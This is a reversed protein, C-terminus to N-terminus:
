GLAPPGTAPPLFRPAVPRAAAYAAPAPPEARRTVVAFWRVMQGAPVPVAATCCGSGLCDCLHGGHSDAPAGRDPVPAAAAHSMAAGGHAGHQEGPAAAAGAAHSMAVGTGDHMPCPHLSVPAGWAAFYLLALLATAVRHLAPRPRIM